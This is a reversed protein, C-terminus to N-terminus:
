WNGTALTCGTFCMALLLDSCVEAMEPQEVNCADIMMFGNLLTDEPEPQLPRMAYRRLPPGKRSIAAAQLRRL